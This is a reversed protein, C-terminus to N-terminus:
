SGAARFEQIRRICHPCQAAHQVRPDSLPPKPTCLAIQKLFEDGPDDIHPEDTPPVPMKRYLDAFWEESQM